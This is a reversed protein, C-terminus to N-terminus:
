SGVLAHLKHRIVRAYQSSTKFNDKAYIFSSAGLQKRTDADLSMFRTLAEQLECSTPACTMFIRDPLRYDAKSAILVPRGANFYDLLKSPFGYKVDKEIVLLLDSSAYLDWLESKKVPPIFRVASTIGYETVLARLSAIKAGDGVLLIEIKHGSIVLDRVAALLEELPYLEGFSGSYTVRLATDEAPKLM